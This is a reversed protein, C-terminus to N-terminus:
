ESIFGVNLLFRELMASAEARTATNTARFTGDEFGEVIGATVAAAIEEHAWVIGNADSFKALAAAVDDQSVSLDKGAFASARVVMAALEERTIVQNPRFTGDEYGKVIGAEVAAAVADAFWDNSRVDHFSAAPAKKGSLGLARVIVTAFEARTISRDPGFTGNEYGEVILKNAMTEVYKKGWHSSVDPFTKNFKAVGYISNTTSKLVAEGNSFAAPVFFLKGSKPDYLVGTASSDANVNNITREAYTSGFDAIEVSKGNAEAKVSFNVPSGIPTGGAAQVAKAYADASEGSLRQITVTIKVDDLDVGLEEALAEFDIADLPLSYSGTSNKITIIAGAPAEAMASAPMSAADGYITFTAHLKGDAFANAIQWESITTVSTVPPFFIGGPPPSSVTKHELYVSETVNIDPSDAMQWHFEVYIGGYVDSSVVDDIVFKFQLRGEDDLGYTISTVDDNEDDIYVTKVVNQRANKIVLKGLVLDDRSENDDGYVVVTVRGNKYETKATDIVFAASALVPLLLSIVMLAAVLGATKKLLITRMSCGSRRVGTENLAGFKDM